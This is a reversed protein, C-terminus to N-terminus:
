ADYLNNRITVNALEYIENFRQESESLFMEHNDHGWERSIQEKAAAKVFAVGCVNTSLHIGCFKELGCKVKSFDEFRIQNPRCLQAPEPYDVSERANASGGGGGGVIDSFSAAKRGDNPDSPTWRV